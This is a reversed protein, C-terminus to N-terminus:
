LVVEITFKTDMNKEHMLYKRIKGWALISSPRFEAFVKDGVYYRDVLILERSYRRFFDKWISWDKNEMKIKYLDTEFM